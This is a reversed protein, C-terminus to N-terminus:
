FGFRKMWENREEDSVFRDRVGEVPDVPPEKTSVSEFAADIAEQWHDHDFWAAGRASAKRQVAHDSSIVVVSRPSPHEALIQQLMEDASVWQRSFFVYMDRMRMSSPLHTPADLSDYVIWVAPRLESPIRDALNSALTERGPKLGSHSRHRSQEWGQGFLLNYGDVLLRCRHVSEPLEPM